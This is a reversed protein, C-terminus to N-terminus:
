NTRVIRGMNVSSISAKKELYKAVIDELNHGTEVVKRAKDKLVSYGDGGRMIFDNTVISYDKKPELPQFTGNKYQVEVKTVRQGAPKAADWTYRLGSVQMFRGTGENQMSEARSVGNELVEQIDAGTIVSTVLTNSFPLTELIHGMTITGTPIAARVGGGNQFGIDADSYARIADAILNGLTCEKERCTNGPGDLVMEAKAIPTARLEALPVAMRAVVAMTEPDQPVSNDLLITNGNWAIPVGADNFTVDLAGLFMTAYYAQVILAPSGSPTKAVVPYPGEARKDNGNHLLTHTHGGVYVDVGDISEALRLDEHLGIHTLAIIHEVGMGKLHAVEKKLIDAYELFRIKEGPSSLISTDHTILGIIGIKRGGVELIKSASWKSQLLPESAVDVNAAVLNGKLDQTFKKLEEPGDDFEHNGITMADFGITNIFPKMSDSKYKTYFLSGQFNDGANLVLTNPNKSKIEKIKPIVRAMGGFCARKEADRPTCFSGQATVEDIRAHMDNVHVITLRFDEAQVPPATLGIALAIGVVVSPWRHHTISSYM